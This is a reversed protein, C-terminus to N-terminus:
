SLVIIDRDVDIVLTTPNRAFGVAQVNGGSATPATATIAGPTVEDLFYTIGPTLGSFGGMEGDYQLTCTTSSPKAKVFGIAPLRAPDNSDAKDVTDAGTLAMADRIAAGAPCSYNRGIADENGVPSKTILM